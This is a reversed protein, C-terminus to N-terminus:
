RRGEAAGDTRGAARRLRATALAMANPDEPEAREAEGMWTAFLAWPDTSLTFDGGAGLPSSPPSVIGSPAPEDIRLRDM